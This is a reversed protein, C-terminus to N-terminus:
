AGASGVGSSLGLSVISSGQVIETSGAPHNTPALPLTCIGRLGDLAGLPTVRRSVSFMSLGRNTGKPSTCTRLPFQCNEARPNEYLASLFEDPLLPCIPSMTKAGESVSREDSSMPTYSSSPPYVSTRRSRRGLVVPSTTIFVRRSPTTPARSYSTSQCNWRVPPVPGDVALSLSTKM